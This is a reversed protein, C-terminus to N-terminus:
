VVGRPVIRLRANCLNFALIETECASGGGVQPTQFYVDGRQM